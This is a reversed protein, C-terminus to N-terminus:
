RRDTLVYIDPRARPVWVDLPLYVAQGDLRGVVSGFPGVPVICGCATARKPLPKRLARNFDRLAACAAAPDPYDGSPPDCALRRRVRVGDARYTVTVRTTPRRHHAAPGNGGGACGALLAATAAAGAIRIGHRM